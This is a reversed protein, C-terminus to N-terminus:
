RLEISRMISVKPHLIDSPKYKKYNSYYSNDYSGIPSYSEPAGDDVELTIDPGNVLAYYRKWKVSGITHLRDIVQDWERKSKFGTILYSGKNIDM